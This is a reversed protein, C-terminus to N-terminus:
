YSTLVMAIMLTGAGKSCMAGSESTPVDIGRNVGSGFAMAPCPITNSVTIVAEEALPTEKEIAITIYAADKTFVAIDSAVKLGGLPGTPFFSTNGLLSPGYQYGAKEAAVEGERLLPFPDSQPLVYSANVTPKLVEPLASVITFVGLACILPSIM